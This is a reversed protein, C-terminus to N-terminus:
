STSTSIREDVATKDNPASGTAELTAERARAMGEVMEVALHIAVAVATRDEATAVERPSGTTTPPSRPSLDVTPAEDGHLQLPALREEEV